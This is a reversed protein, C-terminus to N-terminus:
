ISSFGYKEFFKGSCYDEMTRGKFPIRGIEGAACNNGCHLRGNIIIGAGFGTGIIVGAISSYGKGFGFHKEGLAFCNADNNILVPVGYKRELIKKLPIEKWAPINRAEYVVGKVLDLISPVGVGIGKIKETFISDIVDALQNIVEKKSNADAIKAKKYSVEGGSRSIAACRINTGGIDIGMLVDKDRIKM